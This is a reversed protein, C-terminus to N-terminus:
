RRFFLCYRRYFHSVAVRKAEVLGSVTVDHIYILNVSVNEPWLSYISNKSEHSDSQDVIILEDPLNSQGLISTVAKPLDLPRDKTPIVATLM